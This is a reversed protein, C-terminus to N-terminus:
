EGGDGWPVVRQEAIIGVCVHEPDGGRPTGRWARNGEGSAAERKEVVIEIESDDVSAAGSGGTPGRTGASAERWERNWAVKLEM